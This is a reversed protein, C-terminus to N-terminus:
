RRYFASKHIQPEHLQHLIKGWQVIRLDATRMKGAACLRQGIHIHPSPVIVVPLQLFPAVVVINDRIFKEYCM